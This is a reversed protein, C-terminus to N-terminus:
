NKRRSANESSGGEPKRRQAGKGRLGKAGRSDGKRTDQKHELVRKKKEWSNLEAKCKRRFPGRRTM